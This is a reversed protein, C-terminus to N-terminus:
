GGTRGLAPFRGEACLTAVAFGPIDTLSRYALFRPVWRPRFKETFTYLTPAGAPNLRRLARAAPAKGTAADLAHLQRRFAVFNLSLRVVGHDRAWTVVDHIMREAVGNPAGPLRRMADVSLKTGGHCPSYRQFGVVAGTRDHSVM